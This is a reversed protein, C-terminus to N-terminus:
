PATPVKFILGVLDDAPASVSEIMALLVDFVNYGFSM